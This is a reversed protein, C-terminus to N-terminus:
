IFDLGPLLERGKQKRFNVNLSNMITSHAPNM